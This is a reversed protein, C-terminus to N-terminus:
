RAAAVGVQMREAAAQLNVRGAGFTRLLGRARPELAPFGLDVVVADPRAALLERLTEAQWPLRHPDRVVIALDRGGAREVLGPVDVAQETWYVSKEFLRPRHAGIAISRGGELEVIVAGPGIRVDGQVRIARRAAELGVGADARDPPPQSARWRAVEACRAAAELLRSKAVGAAIAKQLTDVVEPGANGGGICILDVGAQLAAVAAQSLSLRSTLARMEIGDSILLGNFGLDERLMRIAAPNLTAPQPGMERVVIHASMVAKVGAAIAARFPEVEARDVAPLDLHSDAETDGHGPFHKACAAVGQSQLGRVFAASHVAVQEPDAGFSRVGIVPNAPNSNVDAVPALDLDIGLGALRAGMARAVAETLAPDGVSGLALNGPYSSGSEAELRTVDGGEEDIGILLAPAREHIQRSLAAVQEVHAVNRSYLCVSALDPARELLWGPAELGEFGPMLVRLALAELESRM